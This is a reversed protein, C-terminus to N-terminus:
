QSRYRKGARAEALTVETTQIHPKDWGLEIEYDWQRDHVLERIQQRQEEPLGWLGGWEMDRKLACHGLKMWFQHTAAEDCDADVIDAALSAPHGDPDTACHYSWTVQSDGRHFIAVQEDPTRWLEHHIIPREGLEELESIVESVKTRISSDIMLLRHENIFRRDREHM